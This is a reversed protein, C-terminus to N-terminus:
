QAPLSRQRTAVRFGALGALALAMMGAAFLVTAAPRAAFDRAMGALGPLIAIGAYYWTFYVGMGGALSVALWERRTLALNLGPGAAAPMDPPDRYTAAVLVLSVLVMAAAAAMVANWTQAAALPTFLRSSNVGGILRGIGVLLFSSGAGLLGGGAAM